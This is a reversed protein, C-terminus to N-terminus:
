FVYDGSSRSAVVLLPAKDRVSRDRQHRVPPRLPTRWMEGCEATDARRLLRALRRRRAVNVSRKQATIQSRPNHSSLRCFVSARSSFGTLILQWSPRQILTQQPTNTSINTLSTQSTIRNRHRRKHHSPRPTEINPHNVTTNSAIPSRCPM